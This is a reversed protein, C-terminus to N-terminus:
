MIGFFNTVSNSVMTTIKDIFFTFTFLHMSVVIVEKMLVMMATMKVM